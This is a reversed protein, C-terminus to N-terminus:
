GEARGIARLFKTVIKENLKYTIEVLLEELWVKDFAQCINHDVLSM